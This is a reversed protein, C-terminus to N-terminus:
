SSTSASPNSGGVDQKYSLRESRASSRSCIQQAEIEAHCNRCVLDCKTLELLVLEWSKSYALSLPFSKTASDRHHFDLAGYCRSYGCRQCEGGKLEVMRKKISERRNRNYVVALQKDSLSHAERPLPRTNHRGFPSCLLCYRRNRLVRYKGDIKMRVPFRSGCKRCDM